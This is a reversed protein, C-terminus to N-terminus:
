GYLRKLYISQGKTDIRIVDPNNETEITKGYKSDLKGFTYINNDENYNNNLLKESIYIHDDINPITDIDQFEINLEYKNKEKDELTYLYNDKNIIKLKKM